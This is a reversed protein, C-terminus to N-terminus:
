LGKLRIKINKLSIKRSNEMALTSINDYQDGISLRELIDSLNISDTYGVTSTKVEDIVKYEQNIILPKGYAIAQADIGTDKSIGYIEKNYKDQFNINLMGLIYHSRKIAQLFEDNSIFSTYYYLSDGIEKKWAICFDLDEQRAPKGLLIIKIKKLANKPLINTSERILSLNKKSIDIGGPIVVRLENHYQILNYNDEDFFKYPVINIATEVNNAVLYNKINSNAVFVQYSKKLIIKKIFTTFLSIARYFANGSHKTYSLWSNANRIYYINKSFFLSLVYLLFINRASITTYVVIDSKSVGKLFSVLNTFKSINMSNNFITPNNRIRNIARNNLCFKVQYEQEFVKYHTILAEEIHLSNTNEFIYIKKMNNYNLIGKYLSNEQNPRM